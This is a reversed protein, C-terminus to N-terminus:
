RYSPNRNVRANAWPPPGHRWENRPIRRFDRPLRTDSIAVFDGSWRDSRYWYGDNYLFFVQGVRFLDFDVNNAAHIGTNPILHWRPMTRMSIPPPPPANRYDYAGRDRDRYRYRDNSYRDDYRDVTNAWDSPYSRWEREPVLAIVGPVETGDVQVYPANWRSAQYWSGNDTYAYFADGVRFLDYPLDVDAPVYVRTGSVLRWRPAM